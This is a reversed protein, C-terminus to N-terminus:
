PTGASAQGNLDAFISLALGFEDSSLEGKALEVTLDELEAHKPIDIGQQKLYALACALATRKNADNFVHGRAIALAYMAAIGFVDDLGAYYAHTEIRGLASVVGERGGGAFGPLGGLDRIIEDHITVVFDTDLL